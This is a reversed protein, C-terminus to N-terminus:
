DVLVPEDEISPMPLIVADLDDEDDAAAAAAGTLNLSTMASSMVDIPAAHVNILAAQIVDILSETLVDIEDDSEYTGTASRFLLECADCVFRTRKMHVLVQCVACVPKSPGHLKNIQETHHQMRMPSLGPDMPIEFFNAARIRHFAKRYEEKVDGLLMAGGPADTYSQVIKRREYFLEKINKPWDEDFAEPFPGAAYYRMFNDDRQTLTSSASIEM